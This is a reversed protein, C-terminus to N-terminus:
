PTTEEAPLPCVLGHDNGCWHCPFCNPDKRDVTLGEAELLATIRKADKRTAVKVTLTIQESM